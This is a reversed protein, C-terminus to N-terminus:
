AEDEVIELGMAFNAAQEQMKEAIWTDHDEDRDEPAMANWAEEAWERFTPRTAEVFADISEAEFPGADGFGPNTNRIQM